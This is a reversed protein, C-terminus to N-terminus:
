ALNIWDMGGQVKERLDMKINDEWSHRLRRLLRKKRAKWWFGTHM